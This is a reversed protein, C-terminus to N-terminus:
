RGNTRRGGCDPVLLWPNRGMLTELTEEVGGTVGTALLLGGLGGGGLLSLSESSELEGGAL